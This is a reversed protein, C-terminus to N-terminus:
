DRSFKVQIDLHKAGRLSQFVNNTFQKNGSPVFLLGAYEGRPVEIHFKGDAGVSGVHDGHTGKRMVASFGSRVGYIEIGTIPTEIFQGHKHNSSVVTGSMVYGIKDRSKELADIRQQYKDNRTISYITQYNAIALDYVEVVKDPNVAEGKEKFVKLLALAKNAEAQADACTQVRSLFGQIEGKNDDTAEDSEFAQQYYTIATKFQGANYANQALNLKEAVETTAVTRIEKRLVDDVGVTVLSKPSQLNTILGEMQGTRTWSFFDKEGALDIANTKEGSLTIFFAPIDAIAKEFQVKLEAEHQEAKDFDFDADNMKAEFEARFDTLQKEAERAKDECAKQRVFFDNLAQCDVELLLTNYGQSARTPLQCGIGPTFDLHLSGIDQPVNIEICSKKEDTRYFPNTKQPFNFCLQHEATTVQFFYSKGAALVKEVSEQQSTGALKVTFKRKRDSSAVALDCVVCADYMGDSGSVAAQVEDQRNSSAIVLNAQASLFHVRAKGTLGADALERGPLESISLASEQPRVYLCVPLSLLLVLLRKMM